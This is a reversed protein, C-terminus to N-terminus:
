IRWASTVCVDGSAPASDLGPLTAKRTARTEPGMRSRLFPSCGRFIETALACSSVYGLKAARGRLLTPWLANSARPARRLLAVAAGRPRPKPEVRVNVVRWSDRSCFAGETSMVLRTLASLSALGASIPRARRLQPSVGAGNAATRPARASDASGHELLQASLTFLPMCTQIPASSLGRRPAEVWATSRRTVSPPLEM